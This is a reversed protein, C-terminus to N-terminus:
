QVYLKGATYNTADGPLTFKAKRNHFAMIILVPGTPGKKMKFTFNGGADTDFDAESAFGSAPIEEGRVVTCSTNKITEISDLYLTGNVTVYEPNDKKCAALTLLALLVITIYKM